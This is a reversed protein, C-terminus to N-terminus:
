KKEEPGDSRLRLLGHKLEATLTTGKAARAPDTLITGADLRVIAYGRAVVRRPDLLALRRGRAEVREAELVLRM